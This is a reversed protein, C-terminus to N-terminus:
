LGMLLKMESFVKTNEMTGAFQEAGPGYAFIPVRIGTHHGTTHAPTITKNKLSGANLALGGTEHDATVIVLTNGDKKAFEVAAQIAKDFDITEEVTYKFDNVHGGWDIQSGEVMLFFGQKNQSLTRIAANTGKILFDSRGNAMSPPHISDNFFYFYQSYNADWNIASGTATKYGLQELKLLDFYPKGGGIIVDINQKYIDNAIEKHMERNKQHAFFAAPTAHTISCTTVLGTSLGKGEAM